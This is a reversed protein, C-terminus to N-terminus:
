TFEGTAKVLFPKQAEEDQKHKEKETLKPFGFEVRTLSNRHLTVGKTNKPPNSNIKPTPTQINATEKKPTLLSNDGPPQTHKWPSPPFPYPWCDTSPQQARLM